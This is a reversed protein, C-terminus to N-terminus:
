PLAGLAQNFRSVARGAEIRSRAADADAAYREAATRLRTALDIEGLSFAKALLGETDVALRQRELAGALARQAQQLEASSARREALLQDQLREHATRAEILEANAAAVRPENRGASALPIRIGLTISGAYPEASSAREHRYALTLEPNDRRSHSALKLRADAARAAAGLQRLAPHEDLLPPNSTLVEDGLPLQPLGTLAAFALLARMHRLDAEDAANRAAQEAAKAQNLDTRALDGAQLRRAVDAALAAADDLRRKAAAREADALRAQWVAERLDGALRWRASDVAERLLAQEAGALAAERDRQGPLWLPLSLGAELEQAGANRNLRDSRGSVGISPPAPLWAGAAQARAAWEASRFTRAQAMPQRQWTSELADGLTQAQAVPGALLWAMIAGIVIASGLLRDCGRGHRLRAMAPWRSLAHGPVSTGVRPCRGPQINPMRKPPNTM